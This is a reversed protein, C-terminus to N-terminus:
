HCGLFIAQLRLKNDLCVKILTGSAVKLKSGPGPFPLERISGLGGYRSPQWDLSAEEAAGSLDRLRPRLHSSPALADGVKYAVASYALGPAASAVHYQQEVFVIVADPRSKAILHNWDGRRLWSLIQHVRQEPSVPQHRRHAKGHRSAGAAPAFLCLGATCASLVLAKVAGARKVGYRKRRVVNITEVM